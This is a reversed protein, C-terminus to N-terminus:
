GTSGALQNEDVAVEGAQALVRVKRGLKVEARKDAPVLLVFEDRDDDFPRVRREDFVLVLPPHRAEMAFDEDVGRRGRVDAVNMRLRNEIVREARSKLKEWSPREDSASM